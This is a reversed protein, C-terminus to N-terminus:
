DYSTRLNSEAARNNTELNVTQSQRGIRRIPQEVWYYTLIALILSAGGGVLLINQWEWNSDIMLRMILWHWLYWSYSVKGLWPLGFKELWQPQSAILIAAFIEATTFGFVLTAKTGWAFTFTALAIGIAGIAGYRSPARLNLYGLLCGLFIGSIHTDLRYYIYFDQELATACLARWGTLALYIALIVTAARVKRLALIPTLILPWFLYFQEEVALSWTHALFPMPHGLGRAFDAIYAASILAEKIRRTYNGDLMTALVLYSSIVLLLPPYLRKLRRIYFQKKNIQGNRKHEECLLRTILYGSLVFFVDVGVFGGGLGPVQAHFLVVLLIALARIGDLAPIYNM